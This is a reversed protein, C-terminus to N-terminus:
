EIFPANLNPSDTDHRNVRNGTENNLILVNGLVKSAFKKNLDGHIWTSFRSQKFGPMLVTDIKFQNAFRAIEQVRDGFLLTLNISRFSKFQRAMGQFKERLVMEHWSVRVSDKRISGYDIVSEHPMAHVAYVAVPGLNAILQDAKAFWRSTGDWIFLVKKNAVGVPKQIKM